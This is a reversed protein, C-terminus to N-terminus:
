LEDPNFEYGFYNLIAAIRRKRSHRYKSASQMSRHYEITNNDERNNRLDDYFENLQIILTETVEIGHKFIYYALYWVAYLHSVGRIRYSDYDLNFKAVIQKIENLNHILRTSEEQDISEVVQKFYTDIQAETGDIIKELKVLLYLETIFSIDDLRNKNLNRLQDSLFEDLRLLDIDKYVISDYFNAKRLEQPNLREGGRNLRDFINDVVKVDPNEIYEISIVYGWFGSIYEKIDEHSDALSKIEDFTKGNLLELGYDDKGFTLPLKVKSEIFEILAFLRQKGDIVDYHTKGNSTDIKQELFIPPMPFNKLITDILFSKQEDNWVNYDRQYPPDFNYKSLQYHEYFISITTGTTKRNYRNKM